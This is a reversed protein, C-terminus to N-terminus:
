NRTMITLSSSSMKKFSSVLVRMRRFNNRFLDAIGIIPYQLINGCCDFMGIFNVINGGMGSKFHYGGPNNKENISGQDIFHGGSEKLRELMKWRLLYSGYYKLGRNGTASFIPIGTDGIKSWVLGAIPEGEHECIMIKIKHNEHLDTQIQRFENIDVFEAFKKRAHMEQYLEVFKDYLDLGTGDIIKLGNREARRLKERWKKKLGMLLDDLPPLLDLYITRFPAVNSRWTFGEEILINRLLNSGDDIERPIIRLLLKRKIVYERNLARILQRFVQIDKGRKKTQWLPGNNIYAIGVGLWKIKLIRLQAAAVVENHKKLIIHSLNKERWRVAGYSWTQYINADDFGNLIMSWQDKWVSDVMVSFGNDLDNFEV